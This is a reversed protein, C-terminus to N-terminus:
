FQRKQMSADVFRTLQCLKNVASIYYIKYLFTNNKKQLTSDVSKQM